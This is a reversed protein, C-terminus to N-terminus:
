SPLAHRNKSPIRDFDGESHYSAAPTPTQPMYPSSPPPVADGTHKVFGSDTEDVVPWQPRQAQFYPEENDLWPRYKRPQAKVPDAFNSGWSDLGSSNPHAPMDVVQHPELGMLKGLNERFQQEPITDPVAVSRPTDGEGEGGGPLPAPDKSEDRIANPSIVYVSDRGRQKQQISCMVACIGIALLLVLGVAGILIWLWVSSLLSSSSTTTTTESGPMSAQFPLGSANLHLNFQGNKVLEVFATAQAAADVLYVFQFTVVVSGSTVTLILVNETLVRTASVVAAVFRDRNFTAVDTSIVVAVADSTGGSVFDINLVSDESVSREYPTPTYALRILLTLGGILGTPELTLAATRTDPNITVYSRSMWMLNTNNPATYLVEMEARLDPIALM